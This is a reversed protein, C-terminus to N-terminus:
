LPAATSESRKSKERGWALHFHASTGEKQFLFFRGKALLIHIVVACDRASNRGGGALSRSSRPATAASPLRERAYQPAYPGAGRRRRQQQQSTLVKENLSEFVPFANKEKGMKWRSNELKDGKRKSFSTMGTRREKNNNNNERCRLFAGSVIMVGCRVCVLVCVIYM